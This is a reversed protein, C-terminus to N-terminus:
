TGAEAQHPSSFCPATARCPGTCTHVGERQEAVLGGPAVPVAHVVKSKSGSPAPHAPLGTAGQRPSHLDACTLRRPKPPTWPSGSTPAGPGQTQIRARGSIPSMHGSM